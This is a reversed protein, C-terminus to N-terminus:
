EYLWTYDAMDYSVIDDKGFWLNIEKIATEKGDSAHIINRGIHQCFDGRLTGPMATQPDTSGVIERVRKITNRGEVVMPVVPGSTIYEILGGYFPKGKHIDYHKEAFEKSINLFKMAVIKLGGEEFRKIIRGILRRQVGDPKIMVFTREM